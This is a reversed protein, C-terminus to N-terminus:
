LSNADHWLTSTSVTDPHIGHDKAFGLIADALAIYTAVKGPKEVIFTKTVFMNHKNMASCTLYVKM